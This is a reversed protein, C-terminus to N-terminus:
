TLQVATAILLIAVFKFIYSIALFRKTNIHALYLFAVAIEDPLPSAFILGGLAYAIWSAARSYKKHFHIKKHIFCMEFKSVEKAVEVAEKKFIMVLRLLFYDSATAAAAGVLALAIPNLTQALYFLVVIAPLTTTGYAFFGGAVIAGFYGYAGLSLIWLRFFEQHALWISFIIGLTIAIINKHKWEYIAARKFAKRFEM